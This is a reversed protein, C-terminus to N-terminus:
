LNQKISSSMEIQLRIQQSTSMGNKWYIVCMCLMCCVCVCVCVQMCMCMCVYMCVWMHLYVCEYTFIIWTKKKPTINNGDYKNIKKRDHPKRFDLIVSYLYKRSALVTLRKLVGTMDWRKPVSDRNFLSHFISFSSLLLPSPFFSFIFFFHFLALFLSLFWFGWIHFIILYVISNSDM